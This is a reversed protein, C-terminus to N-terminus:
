RVGVFVDHLVEDLLPQQLQDIWSRWRVRLGVAIILRFIIFVMLGQPVGDIPEETQYM